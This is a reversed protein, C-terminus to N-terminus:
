IREWSSLVIDKMPGCAGEVNAVFQCRYGHDRLTGQLDIMTKMGYALKFTFSFPNVVHGRLAKALSYKKQDRLTTNVSCVM